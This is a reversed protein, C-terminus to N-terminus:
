DPSLPAHHAEAGRRVGARRKGYIHICIYIYIYVFGSLYINIYLREIYISVYLCM